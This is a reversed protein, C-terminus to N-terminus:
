FRMGGGGRSGGGGGGGGGTGPLQGTGTSATSGEPSVYDTIVDDDPQVGGSLIETKSGDSVGTEVRLPKPEGQRLVWVTRKNSGDEGAAAGKNRGGGGAGGGAGGGGSGKMGSWSSSGAAKGKTMDAPPKFRLAANPVAIAQKAEAWVFSVNATMGPKLKLETNQVDLVADYTVVNQQTQAANRVERVTGTFKQGPYADVTFSAEMGAKLKGVDAEAVYTDVQILRLDQAITFLVPAQLSAAVTQGVDVSRSIVVGDIPSIITAYSLNVEADSVSAAAAAINANAVVVDAASSEKSNLAQDLDSQNALGQAMLAQTREYNRVAQALNAKAKALQGNAQALSARAKALAADLSRPDLKAVVQGKKVQSNFDAFLEQIRGSVQSGVQVTVRASLTGTATVKAQLDAREVKATKYPSVVTATKKRYWLVGVVAPAVVALVAVWGLVRKIVLAESRAALRKPFPVPASPRGAVFV